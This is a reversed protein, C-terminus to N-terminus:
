RPMITLNKTLLDSGHEHVKKDHSCETNGESIRFNYRVRRVLMWMVWIDINTVTIKDNKFSIRAFHTLSTDVYINDTTLEGETMKLLLKMRRKKEVSCPTNEM